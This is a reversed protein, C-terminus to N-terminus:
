LNDPKVENSDGIVQLGSDRRQEVQEAKKYRRNLWWIGFVVVGVLGWFSVFSYWYNHTYPLPSYWLPLNFVLKLATYIVLALIVAAAFLTSALFVRRMKRRAERFSIKPSMIRLIIRECYQYSFLLVSLWVGVIALVIGGEQASLALSRISEPM